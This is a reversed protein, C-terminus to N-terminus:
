SSSPINQSFRIIKQNAFLSIIIIFLMWENMWENMWEKMWENMWESVWENMWENMWEYENLASQCFAFYCRYLTTPRSIFCDLSPLLLITFFHKDSKEYAFYQLTSAAHRCNVLFLKNRGTYKSLLKTQSSKSSSLKTPRAINPVAVRPRM